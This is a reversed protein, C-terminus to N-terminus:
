PKFLTVKQNNMLDLVDIHLWTVDDELRVPYPLKDANAIIKQRAQAATLGTITLDFGAGVTHPMTNLQGKKSYDSNIQCLNCRLGRQSM